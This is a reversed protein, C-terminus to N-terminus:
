LPSRSTTFLGDTYRVYYLYELRNSTSRRIDSGYGMVISRRIEPRMLHNEMSGAELRNDFLVDGRDDILTVRLEPQM